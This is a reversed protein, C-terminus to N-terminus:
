KKRILLEAVLSHKALMPDNTTVCSSFVISDQSIFFGKREPHDDGFVIIEKDNIEYYFNKKEIGDDLCTFEQNFYVYHLLHTQAKIM